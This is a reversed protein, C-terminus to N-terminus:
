KGPQLVLCTSGGDSVSAAVKVPVDSVTHEDLGAAHLDQLRLAAFQGPAASQLLPAAERLSAEADPGLLCILTADAPVLRALVAAGIDAANLREPAVVTHVRLPTRLAVLIGDRDVTILGPPTGQAVLALAAEAAVAPATLLHSAGARQALVLRDLLAKAVAAWDPETGPDVFNLPARDGLRGRRVRRRYPEPVLETLDTSPLLPMLSLDYAACWVLLDDLGLPQTGALQRQCTKRAIGTDRAVTAANIVDPVAARLALVLRHQLYLAAVQPMADRPEPPWRCGETGFGPPPTSVCPRYGDVAPCNEDM